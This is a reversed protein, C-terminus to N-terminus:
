ATITELMKDALIDKDFQRLALSKARSGMEKVISHNDSLKVLLDALAAPDGPDVTFGVNNDALLANLWGNTNQIVPVGAALSEFLKNPSSSDLVSAGKLPVMSVLANQIYYVLQIKPVMGLMIFNTVGDNKARQELERKQQGDGALVILIDARSKEFLLKAAEYLWVSNNIEGINGNYIAYSLPTLKILGPDPSKHGFLHNNAANPISIVNKFGLRKGIDAKMDPSLVVIQSAAKYCKKEFWYAFRILYKNDIIGLSVAVKPWLDRVEFILKRRRIYRAILGPLGVTIPGSSAVVVDARLVLAIWCSVFMFKIFSWIRRLDSQKNDVSVNIIKVDIGEFNQNDIFRNARIDSKAYVSTVVTVSHGKEVWRKAFEFVRTGYFGKPTTFYQYFYLIRM